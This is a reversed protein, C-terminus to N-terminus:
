VFKSLTQRIGSLYSTGFLNVHVLLPYLNHIEIREEFGPELPFENQYADYFIQNFGGFLTTFSLETERHGFHVSPDILVPQSEANCLFNGGWLDGHLLSPQEDPILQDLTSLLPEFGKLVQNDIYGNTHALKLQPELRETIFFDVWSQHQKNSQPLKGIYNDHDLGFSQSSVQHLKALKQGFDKWFPDSKIGEDIWELLLYSKDERIGVGLVKPIKFLSSENLKKLGEAEKKFMDMEQATNWKLFYSNSGSKIRAAENICGGGLRQVQDLARLEDHETLIGEFFDKM